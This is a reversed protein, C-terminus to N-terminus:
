DAPWPNAPPTFRGDPVGNAILNSRLMELLDLDLEIDLDQVEENYDQVAAMLNDLEAITNQDALGDHFTDVVREFEVYINLMVFSKQVAAIDPADFFGAPQLEDAPYPYFVDIHDSIPTDSGPERFSLDLSAVLSEAEAEVGPRPMLEVMLKSGGGRRGDDETVDTDSERHALFVSPVDLRGGRTTNAWLPTGLARGFRYSAGAEMELTVDFAVPVTFFSLEEQFVEDVAGADELFYFNGDAQLALDRMLEINFDSGLGITTLGIGDSNYGWSTQLISEPQVIGATPNGDSLLIVRNQRGSDYQESVEQYGLVLGANLNTGGAAVLGRAIERLETRNAQVEAMPFDVQAGDSYTILALQDGDTMGDILMELGDRVFEIKQGQMSGSVDVVVALSLPPRAGPDAALPSVLALELMTCNSGDFLNGMVALTPQLCIREGCSPPSLDSHHEAFFGAADLSELSPIQGAELQGRFFGFDQSGGLSVNTGQPNTPLNGPTATSDPVQAGGPTTASGFSANGSAAESSSGCGSAGIGSLSLVILGIKRYKSLLITQMDLRRVTTGHIELCIEGTIGRQPEADSASV